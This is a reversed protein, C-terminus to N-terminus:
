EAILAAYRNVCAGTESRELLPYSTPDIPLLSQGQKRRGSPQVPWLGERSNLVGIWYRREDKPTRDLRLLGSNCTLM